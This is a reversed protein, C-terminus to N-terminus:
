QKKKTKQTIGRRFGEPIPDTKPIQKNVHGNTIHMFRSAAISLRKRHDESLRPRTLRAVKRTSAAEVNSINQGSNWKEIRDLLEDLSISSGSGKSINKSHPMVMCNAPHSVIEPSTAERWAQEVSYMHDRSVGGPNKTPHYVGLQSVLEHGPIRDDYGFGLKFKCKSKFAEKEDTRTLGRAKYYSSMAKSLPMLTIGLSTKLFGGFDAYKLEYKKAIDAPSLVNDLDSQFMSKMQNVHAWTVPHDAPIKLVHRCVRILAYKTKPVLTNHEQPQLNKPLSDFSSNVSHETTNNNHM